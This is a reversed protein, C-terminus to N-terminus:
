RSLFIESALNADGPRFGRSGIISIVASLSEGARESSSVLYCLDAMGRLLDGYTIAPESFHVHRAPHDVMPSRWNQFTYTGHLAM